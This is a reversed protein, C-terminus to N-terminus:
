RHHFRGSHIFKERKTTLLYSNRRVSKTRPDEAQNKFESQFGLSKNKKDSFTGV